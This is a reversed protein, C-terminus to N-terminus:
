RQQSRDHGVGTLLRCFLPRATNHSVQRSRRLPPIGILNAGNSRTFAIHRNAVGVIVHSQHAGILWFILLHHLTGAHHPGVLRVAAGMHIHRSGAHRAM